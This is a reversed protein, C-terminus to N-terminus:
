EDEEKYFEEETIEIFDTVNDQYAVYIADTGRCKCGGSKTKYFKNKRIPCIKNLEELLYQLDCNESCNSLLEAIKVLLDVGSLIPIKIEKKSKEVMENYNPAFKNRLLKAIEEETKAISELYYLIDRNNECSM